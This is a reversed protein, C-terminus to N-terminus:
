VKPSGNFYTEMTAQIQKLAYERSVKILERFIALVMISNPTFAQNFPRHEWGKISQNISKLASNKLNLLQIYDDITKPSVNLQQAVQKKTLLVNPLLNTM